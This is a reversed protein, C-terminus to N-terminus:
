KSKLRSLRAAPVRTYLDRYDAVPELGNISVEAQQSPSSNMRGRARRWLPSLTTVPLAHLLSNNRDRCEPFNILNRLLSRVIHFTLKALAHLSNSLRSWMTTSILSSSLDHGHPRYFPSARDLMLPQTSATILEPVHRLLAPTRFKPTKCM